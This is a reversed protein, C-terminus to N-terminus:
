VHVPAFIEALVEGPSMSCGTVRANGGGAREAHKISTYFLSRFCPYSPTDVQHWFRNDVLSKM